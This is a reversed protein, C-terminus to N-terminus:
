IKGELALDAALKRFNRVLLKTSWPQADIIKGWRGLGKETRLDEIPVYWSLGEPTKHVVARRSEDVRWESAVSGPSDEGAPKKKLLSLFTEEPVDLAVAVKRWFDPIDSSCGREIRNFYKEHDIGMRAALEGQTVGRAERIRKLTEGLVKGTEKDARVIEAMSEFEELSMGFAAAVRERFEQDAELGHIIRRWVRPGVNIRGNEIRYITSCNKIGVKRALVDGTMGRELRIRQMEKGLMVDINGACPNPKPAALSEDVPVKLIKAIRIWTPPDAVQRGQELDGVFIGGKGIKSGFDSHSLGQLKRRYALAAGLAKREELDESPFGEEGEKPMSVLDELRLDLADALKKWMELGPKHKGLEIRSLLCGTKLGVKKGLDKLTMNRSLRAKRLIEGAGEKYILVGEAVVYRGKQIEREIEKKLDKFELDEPVDIFEDVTTNLAEAIRRWTWPSPHRKGHEINSIVAGEKMGLMGALAAQPIGMSERKRLLRQGPTAGDPLADVPIKVGTRGRLDRNLSPATKPANLFVEVPMDLARAIERWTEPEPEVYGKEIYSITSHTKWGLLRTLDGQSLRRFKREAALIEGSTKEKM